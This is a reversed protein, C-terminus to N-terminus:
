SEMEKAIERNIKYDIDELRCDLANLYKYTILQKSRSWNDITSKVEDQELIKRAQAPINDM